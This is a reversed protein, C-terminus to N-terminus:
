YFEFKGRVLKEVVETKQKALLETTARILPELQKLDPNSRLPKLHMDLTYFRNCGLSAKGVLGGRGLNFSRIGQAAAWKYLQYTEALYLNHSPAVLERRIGQVLMMFYADGVSCFNLSAQVIQGNTKDRRLCILSNEGVSSDRILGMQLPGHTNRGHGYKKLNEWHIDEFDKVPGEDLKDAASIFHFGLEFDSEAKRALRNINKSVSKGLQATIDSDIDNEITYESEFFWPIKLYGQEALLGEDECSRLLPYLIWDANAASALEQYRNLDNVTPKQAHIGYFYGSAVWARESNLNLSDLGVMKTLSSWHMIQSFPVCPDAVEYLSCFLKRYLTNAEGGFFRDPSLRSNM